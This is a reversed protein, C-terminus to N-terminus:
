EFTKFRRDLFFKPRLLLELVVPGALRELLRYLANQEIQPNNQIARAKKLLSKVEAFPRGHINANRALMRLSSAVETRYKLPNVAVIREAHRALSEANFHAAEYQKSKISSGPHRRYYVTTGAQYQVNAGNLISRIYLERDQSIIFYPDFWGFRDFFARRWLFAHLAFNNKRILQRLIDPNEGYTRHTGADPDTGDEFIIVDGVVVDAEPHAEFYGLQRAVKDPALFDDADLFQIFGAQSMRIAENRSHSKGLPKDHSIWVIKPHAAVTERPSDTSGDDVIIIKEPAPELALVSRVADPLFAAMNYVPIIVDFTAM